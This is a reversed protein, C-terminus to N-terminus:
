SRASAANPADSKADPYGEQWDTSIGAAVCFYSAAFHRTSFMSARSQWKEVPKMPVFSRIGASAFIPRL